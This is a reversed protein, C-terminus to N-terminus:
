VTLRASRSLSVKSVVYIFSDAISTLFKVRDVSTSPAILPIYSMRGDTGPPTSAFFRFGVRHFYLHGQVELGGRAPSRGSHLRQSRCRQCRSGGEGRRLCDIPQLLRLNASACLVILHCVWSCSRLKSDKPVLTVSTTSVTSTTSTMRSPSRDDTDELM